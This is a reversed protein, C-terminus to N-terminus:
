YGLDPDIRGVLDRDDVFRRVNETVLRVLRPRLMGYTNAVHPTIICDDRNWLPHGDPLPEPDTLDLAAGGITGADLAEVLHDTVIHPGRAVNILLADERMAGLAARDIIGTTADTLALALVVFRAQEIAAHLDDIRLTRHAGPVPEASRRVVTVECRFPALMAMLATTIGGAGLITVSADLLNDGRDPAWTTARVYPGLRRTAALMLLLAHEATTEGYIGKACTWTRDHDLLGAFNEIGAFPLQVWRISPHADLTAALQDAAAPDAWVLGDAERVQVIEAGGQRAAEILWRGGDHRALWGSDSPAVAIRASVM